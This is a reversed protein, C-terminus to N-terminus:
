FRSPGSCGDTQRTNHGKEKKEAHKVRVTQNVVKPADFLYHPYEVFIGSVGLSKKLSSLTIIVGALLLKMVPEQFTGLPEQLRTPINHCPILLNDPHEIVGSRLRGGAMQRAPAPLTLTECLGM